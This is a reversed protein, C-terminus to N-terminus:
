EIWAFNSAYAKGYLEMGAKVDKDAISLVAGDNIRFVDCSYKKSSYFYETLEPTKFEKETGDKYTYTVLGRRILIPKNSVLIQEEIVSMTGQYHEGSNIIYHKWKTFPNIKNKNVPSIASLLIMYIVLLVIILLCVIMKLKMPDVMFSVGVIVAIAAMIVIFDAISNYLNSESLEVKYKLKDERM